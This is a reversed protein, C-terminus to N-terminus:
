SEPGSVTTVSAAGSTTEGREKSEDPLTVVPLDHEFAIRVPEVIYDILPRLITNRRPNHGYRRAEEYARDIEVDQILHRYLVVLCGTRESGAGCHILMPLKSDDIMLRLSELYMTPDGTGDGELRLVYREVGLASATKAQLVDERTGPEYAGMDIITRINHARVVRSLASVTLEGSRYIKDPVVVGFNKPFIHPWAGVVGLVVLGICACLVVARAVRTRDTQKCRCPSDTTM